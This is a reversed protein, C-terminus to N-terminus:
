KLVANQYVVMKEVRVTEDEDSPKIGIEIDWGEFIAAFVPGYRITLPALEYAEEKLGFRWVGERYLLFSIGAIGYKKKGDGYDDDGGEKEYLIIVGLFLIFLLLLLLLLGAAGLLVKMYVPTGENRVVEGSIAVVKGSERKM